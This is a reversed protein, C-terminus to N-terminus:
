DASLLLLFTLAAATTVVRHATVAVFDSPRNQQLEFFIESAPAKESPHTASQPPLAFM